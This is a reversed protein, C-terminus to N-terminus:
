YQFDFFGKLTEMSINEEINVAEAEVVFLGTKGYDCAAYVKQFDSGDFEYHIDIFYCTNGEIEMTEIQTEKKVNEMQFDLTVMLYDVAGSYASEANISRLYCQVNVFDTTMFMETKYSATDYCDQSYFGQPVKFNVTEGGFSLSSETKAEGIDQLQIQKLIDESISDPEDTKQATSIIGAFINILDEDSLEESEVVIHGGFHNHNDGTYIVFTKNGMLDAKYYVYKKGILVTEEVNQLITGGAEIMKDTLSDPNKAIEDLSGEKAVIKMQFIDDKYIVPGTGEVYTCGFDFPIIMKYGDIVIVIGNTSVTDKERENGLTSKEKSDEKESSEKVIFPGANKSGGKKNRDGCFLLIASLVLLIAILIIIIGIIIFLGKDKKNKM